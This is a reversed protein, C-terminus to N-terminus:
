LYVVWISRAGTNGDFYSSLRRVERLPVDDPFSLCDDIRIDVQPQFYVRSYSTYTQGFKDTIVKMDDVRYGNVTVPDAYEKDGSALKKELHHINVPFKCWPILSEFM